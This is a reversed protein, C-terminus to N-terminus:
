GKSTRCTRVTIENYVGKWRTIKNQFLRTELFFLLGTFKGLAAAAM